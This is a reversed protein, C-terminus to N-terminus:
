NQANTNIQNEKANTVEINQSKIYEIIQSISEFGAAHAKKCAAVFEIPVTAALGEYVLAMRLGGPLALVSNPTQLIVGANPDDYIGDELKNVLNQVKGNSRVYPIWTEGTFSAKILMRLTPNILIYALCGGLGINGIASIMFLIWPQLLVTLLDFGLANELM